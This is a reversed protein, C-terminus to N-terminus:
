LTGSDEKMWDFFWKYRDNVYRKIRQIESANLRGARGKFFMDYLADIGRMVQGIKELELDKKM